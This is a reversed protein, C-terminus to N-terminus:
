SLAASIASGPNCRYGLRRLETELAALSAMANSMTAAYGSHGVRIIKGKLERFGGALLVSHRAVLADLLETDNM